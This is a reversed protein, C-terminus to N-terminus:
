SGSARGREVHNGLMWAEAPIPTHHEDAHPMLKRFRQNQFRSLADAIPNYHGLIHKFSISFHSVAAFM